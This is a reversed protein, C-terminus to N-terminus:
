GSAPDPTDPTDPTKFSPLAGGPRPWSADVAIRRGTVGVAPRSPLGADTVVVATNCIARFVTTGRGLRHTQFGGRELLDPHRGLCGHVHTGPLVLVPYLRVPRRAIVDPARGRRTGSPYRDAHPHSHQSRRRAPSERM